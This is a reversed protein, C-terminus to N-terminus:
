LLIFWKIENDDLIDELDSISEFFLEKGDSYRVKCRCNIDAYCFTIDSRNSILNKADNLLKLRSKTLDLHVSKGKLTKRKRYFLTRHRFTTFRVIVDPNNKSVHHAWDLVADPITVEAEEFLKRVQDLVEDSREKEKRLIGKIRLCLQRGYQENEECKKILDENSCKLSTVHQQLMKNTSTIEDMKKSVEEKFKAQEQTFLTKIEEKISSILIEKTEAIFVNKLEDFKSEMMANIEDKRVM